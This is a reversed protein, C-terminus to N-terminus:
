LALSVPYSEADVLQCGPLVPQSPQDLLLQYIASKARAGLVAEFLPVVPWPESVPVPALGPPTALAQCMPEDLKSVDRCSCYTLAAFGLALERQSPERDDADLGAPADQVLAVPAAAACAAARLSGGVVHNCGRNQSLSLPVARGETELSSAQLAEARVVALLGDMDFLATRDDGIRVVVTQEEPIVVIYQGFHGIAAFTGATGSPFLRADSEADPRGGFMSDSRNLWVQYGYAKGGSATTMERYFDGTVVGDLAGMPASGAALLSQGIGLMQPATLFLGAATDLNGSADEEWVVTGLGMPAFLSQSLWRRLGEPGAIKRLVGALLVSDGSSYRFQKGPEVERDRSLVFAEHDLAGSGYLMQLVDSSTQSAEYSETWRAGSQMRLLQAVTVDCWPTNKARDSYQCLSSGTDIQAQKAAAGIALATVTKTVSYMKAQTSPGFGPAYSEHVLRGSKLVMLASSPAGRQQEKLVFAELAPTSTTLRPSMSAHSVLPASAGLLCLIVCLSLIVHVVLKPNSSPLKALANFTNM